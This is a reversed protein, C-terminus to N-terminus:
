AHLQAYGSSAGPNGIQLLTPPARVWIEYLAGETVYTPVSFNTPGTRRGIQGVEHEQWLIQRSRPDNRKHPCKTSRLYTRKLPNIINASRTYASKASHNNTTYTVYNAIRTDPINHIINSM